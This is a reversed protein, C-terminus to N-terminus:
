EITWGRGWCQSCPNSMGDSNLVHADEASGQCATCPYAKILEAALRHLEEGMKIAEDKTM